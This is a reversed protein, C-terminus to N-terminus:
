QVLAPDALRVMTQRTKFGSIWPEEVPPPVFDAGCPNYDNGGIWNQETRIRGAIHSNPAQDLLARHIEVIQEVGVSEEATANEIALQMADINGLVELATSTARQGMDNSVEARALARADVQM